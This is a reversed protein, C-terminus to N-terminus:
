EVNAGEILALGTADFDATPIAMQLTNWMVQYTCFASTFDQTYARKGVGVIQLQLQNASAFAISTKSILPNAKPQGTGSTLVSYAMTAVAGVNAMLGSLTQVTPAADMDLEFINGSAPIFACLPANDGGIGGTYATAGTYFSGPRPFGGVVVRPFGLVIGFCFDDSDGNPGTVDQATQVLEVTGAETLRVPDGININVNTGAGNITGPQYGTAIPMTMVQPTDGGGVLSRHWRFGYIHTNAM